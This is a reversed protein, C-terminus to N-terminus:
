TLNCTTHGPPRSVWSTVPQIKRTGSRGAPFDPTVEFNMLPIYIDLDPSLAQVAFQFHLSNTANIYEIFFRLVPQDALIALFRKFIYQRGNTSIFAPLM